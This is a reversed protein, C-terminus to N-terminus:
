CNSFTEKLQRIPRSSKTAATGKKKGYGAQESEDGAECVGGEATWSDKAM